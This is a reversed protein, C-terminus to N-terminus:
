KKNEEQNDDRERYRFGPNPIGHFPSKAGDSIWKILDNNNDANRKINYDFVSKQYERYSVLFVERDIQAMQEELTKPKYEDKKIIVTDYGCEKHHRTHCKVCIMIKNEPRNDEHIHNKHHEEFFEDPYEKECWPCLM